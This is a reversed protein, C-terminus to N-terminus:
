VNDMANYIQKLNLRGEYLAKGIVVGGVAIQKLKLLDELSSTGGSAICSLNPYQKSISQYLDFNNGALTGDCAIDTCLIHKLGYPLYADILDFLSVTSTDQWGNVALMPIHDENLRFDLTLLLSEGYQKQWSQVLSIKQVALSGIMVKAVGLNLWQQLAELTRIGGGVQVKLDTNQIINRILKIQRQKPDKAGQLDVIHLYQVGQEQFDLATQLPNDSYIVAQKFDGQYLRVCKGDLLDMAPYIIM